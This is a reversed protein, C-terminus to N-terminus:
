RSAGCAEVVDPAPRGELFSGAGPRVRRTANAYASRAGQLDCAAEQALGLMFWAGASLPAQRVQAEASERFRGLNQEHHAQAVLSRAEAATDTEYPRRYSDPFETALDLARGLYQQASELDGHGRKLHALAVLMKNLTWDRNPAQIRAVREYVAEADALKGLREYALGLALFAGQWVAGGLELTRVTQAIDRDSASSLVPALQDVLPQWQEARQHIMALRYRGETWPAAPDVAAGRAYAAVADELSLALEYAEGLQYWVVSDDAAQARVAGLARRAGEIDGAAVRRRADHIVILPAFHDPGSRRALIAETTIWDSRLVSRRLALLDDAVTPAPAAAVVEARPDGHLLQIYAWNRRMAGLVGPFLAVALVLAM